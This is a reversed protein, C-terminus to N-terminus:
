ALANSSPKHSVMTFGRLSPAHHKEKAHISTERRWWWANHVFPGHAPDMLGVVAHDVECPFIQSEVFRPVATGTAGAIPIRPPELAPLAGAKAPQAFYVWILGDQERAPYSQVRIRGVDMNQDQLLSPI